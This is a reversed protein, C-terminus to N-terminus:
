LFILGLRREGVKEMKTIEVYGLRQEWTGRERVREGQPGRVCCPVSM